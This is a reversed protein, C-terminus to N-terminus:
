GAHLMDPFNAHDGPMPQIVLHARIQKQFWQGGFAAVNNMKSMGRLISGDPNGIM